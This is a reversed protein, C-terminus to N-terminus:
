LTNRYFVTTCKNHFYRPAIGWFDIKRFGNNKLYAVGMEYDNRESDDLVIIGDNKLAAECNMMCQVRFIGDIIIIDYKEDKSLLLKSYGELDYPQYIIEVNSPTKAKISNYWKLNHEVTVVKRVYSSYFLTSNGSGFEFIEMEPKLYTKIYEIFSYTTWPIPKLDKDLSEHRDYSEFWGLEIFYGSNHM